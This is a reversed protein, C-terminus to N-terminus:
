SCIKISLPCMAERTREAVSVTCLYATSQLPSINLRVPITLWPQWLKVALEWEHWFGERRLLSFLMLVAYILLSPLVPEKPCFTHYKRQHSLHFWSVFYEENFMLLKHIQWCPRTCNQASIGVCARFLGAGSSSAAYGPLYPMRCWSMLGAAFDAINVWITCWVLTAESRRPGLRTWEAHTVWHLM